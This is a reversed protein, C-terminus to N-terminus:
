KLVRERIKDAVPLPFIEDLAAPARKIDAESVFHTVDFFKKQVAAVRVAGQDVVTTGDRVTVWAYFKPYAIGSQTPGDRLLEYAVTVSRQKTDKFYKELDRKLFKDFDKEDPVNARIHSEALSGGQPASAIVMGGFLLLAVAISLKMM